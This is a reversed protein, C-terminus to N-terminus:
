LNEGNKAIVEKYWYYSDKPTRELTEFDVYVMGFREDFGAAWEFNDMFSWMFYGRVDVGDDSAQRLSRLYRTVYDIRQPDHVKGDVSVWDHCCAGNETIYIPLNYREYLFKPGWYLVEPKMYWGNLTIRPHGPKHPADAGNAQIAMGNYMNQCYFDLPQCITKLDEKYTAPLYQEFMELADEPYKGLIVPDSWLSVSDAWRQPTVAFYRRRAAEIDATSMPDAPFMVRACPAFSIKCGPVMARLTQVAKGHALLVNHIMPIVQSPPLQKGPAHAGIVYGLNIFCQPENFTMFNKVKGGLYKAVVKTYEVFWEPSQPNAWSGKEELAQPYDWHFLTVYPEIGNKLLEDVLDVYFQIGKENIRGIGEPMVRSWSISFRYAKLGQAAMLAVDEKYRHYHDCAINGTENNRIHVTSATNALGVMGQGAQLVDTGSSNCFVDWNCLGKGDDRYGGEIQYSATASGWVFDRCFGM